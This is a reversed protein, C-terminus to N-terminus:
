SCTTTHACRRGLCFARVQVKGLVDDATKVGEVWQRMLEIRADRQFDEPSLVDEEEISPTSKITATPSLEFRSRLPTFLNRFM